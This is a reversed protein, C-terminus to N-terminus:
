GPAALEEFSKELRERGRGHGEGPAHLAKWFAMRCLTISVMSSREPRSTVAKMESLWTPGSMSTSIKMRPGGAAHAWGGLRPVISREPLSPSPRWTTLRM